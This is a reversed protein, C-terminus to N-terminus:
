LVKSLGYCEAKDAFRDLVTVFPKGTPRDQGMWIAKHLTAEQWCPLMPGQGCWKLGGDRMSFHLNAGSSAIDDVFTLDRKVIAFDYGGSKIRFSHNELSEVQCRGGYRDVGLYVGPPLLRTVFQSVAEVTEIDSPSSSVAPMIALFTLSFAIVLFSILDGMLDSLFFFSKRSRTTTLKSFPRMNLVEYNRNLYLLGPAM